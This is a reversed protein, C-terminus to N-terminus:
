KNRRQNMRHGVVRQQQSIQRAHRVKSATNERAICYYDAHFAHPPPAGRRPPESRACTPQANKEDKDLMEREQWGVPGTKDFYEQTVVIHDEISNPGEGFTIYDWPVDSPTGNLPLKHHQAASM